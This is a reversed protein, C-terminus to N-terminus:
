NKIKEEEVKPPHIWFVEVVPNHLLKEAAKQAISSATQEDPAQIQLLFARGARVQTVEPYGLRQIARHITEGEPDLLVPRPLVTILVQYTPM